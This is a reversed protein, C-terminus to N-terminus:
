RRWWAWTMLNATFWGTRRGFILESIPSITQLIFVLLISGSMILFVDESHLPLQLLMHVAMSQELVRRALTATLLMGLAIGLPSPKM